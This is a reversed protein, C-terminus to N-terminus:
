LGFLCVSVCVSLIFVNGERMRPRYFNHVFTVFTELWIGQNLDPEGVQKQFASYQICYIAPNIASNLFLAYVTFHYFVGSLPLDVGM